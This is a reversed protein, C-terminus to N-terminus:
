KFHFWIAMSKPSLSGEECVQLSFWCFLIKLTERHKKDFFNSPEHNSLSSIWVAIVIIILIKCNYQFFRIIIINKPFIKIIKCNLIVMTSYYEWFGWFRPGRNTSGLLNLICKTENCKWSCSRLCLCLFPAALCPVAWCRCSWGDWRLALGLWTVFMIESRQGESCPYVLTQKRGVWFIVQGSSVSLRLIVKYKILNIAYLM